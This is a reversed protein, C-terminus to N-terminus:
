DTESTEIGQQVSNFSRKETASACIVLQMVLTRAHFLFAITRSWGQSKRSNLLEGRRRECRALMRGRSLLGESTSRCNLSDTRVGDTRWLEFESNGNGRRVFRTPGGGSKWGGGILARRLGNTGNKM